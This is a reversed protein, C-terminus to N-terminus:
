ITENIYDPMNKDVYKYGKQLAYNMLKVSYSHPYSYREMPRVVKKNHYVVGINEAECGVPKYTVYEM